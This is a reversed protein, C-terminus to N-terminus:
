LTKGEASESDVVRGGRVSKVTEEIRKISVNADKLIPALDPSQCCAVFLHDVATFSDGQAKMLEQAKKLLTITSRSFGVDEPAPSQTPLKSIRQKVATDFVETDAKAKQLVNLAFHDPDELLALM